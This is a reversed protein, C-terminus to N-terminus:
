EAEVLVRGVEEFCNLSLTAHSSESHINGDTYRIEKEEAGDVSLLLMSYVGVRLGM